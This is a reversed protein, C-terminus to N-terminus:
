RDVEGFVLDMTGIIAVLDPLFHNRAIHDLAGLNTFGPARVHMRYPRESGDSVLYVGMEGKPAEVATYTDGPPVAVGKTFHLFHHILSEMNEKMDTRPPPSVKWDEVRVPGDPMQNCCQEIIRLSQRFEAMRVLYRDYTDGRTGVPIDFDVYEYADYPAAKRIDHPIGSGRLMPGTLGYSLAEDAGVIGIDVTRFKWIRNDTLMEEVEDIRDGFHTAWQYIDDLLGAPLDRAVGGPRIYAFHMRAGAVREYFEMIRERDELGWLFPTLAGVDMAHSLVSMLHNSIRTLEAYLTRIYKARIPVDVNLLKETALSFVSENVAMSSYDMRDFYPLAQNYTKYECLKETGRHLLGVHPDARVIEEGNLELILRLVGHAAPHQPGFNITFHRIKSEKPEAERRMTLDETITSRGFEPSLPQGIPQNLGPPVVQAHHERAAEDAANTHLQSVYMQRRAQAQVARPVSRLARLM